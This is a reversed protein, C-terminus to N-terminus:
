RGVFRPKRKEQFARVGEKFDETGFVAALAVAGDSVSELSPDELVKAVSAKAWRVSTPAADLIAGLLQQAAEDLQDVAHVSSVLRMQLARAASFRGGTFLIEKAASPGVVQVLRRVDHHDISIGLKAAPIGFVADDAAIRLDAALALECGGGLCFGRVVAIVPQPLSVIAELAAHVRANYALALEPTSRHVEFESIDAGASFAQAGAGTLVVVRVSADTALERGVQGLREWGAVTIANRREQQDLVITAVAGDRRVQVGSESVHPRGPSAIM